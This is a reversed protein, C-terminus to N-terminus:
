HPLRFNIAIAYKMSIEKGNQRGPVWKPMGKIIRVAEKDLDADVGRVVEIQNLSGDKEIIVTVTVRGSIRHILAAEPYQIQKYIYEAMKEEGGPFEPIEEFVISTYDEDEDSLEEPGPVVPDYCMVFPIDNKSGSSVFGENRDNKKVLQCATLMLLSTGLLIKYKTLYRNDFYNSLFLMLRYLCRYVIRKM